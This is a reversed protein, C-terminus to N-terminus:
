MHIEKIQPESYSLSKYNKFAASIPLILIEIALFM